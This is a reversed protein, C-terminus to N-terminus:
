VYVCNIIVNHISNKLTLNDITKQDLNLVKGESLEKAYSLADKLNMKGKFRKTFQAPLLRLWDRFENVVRVNLDQVSLKQLPKGTIIGIMPFILNMFLSNKEKKDSASWTNQNESLFHQYLDLLNIEIGDSQGIRKNPSTVSSLSQINNNIQHLIDVQYRNPNEKRDKHQYLMQVTRLCLLNYEKSGKKIDLKAWGVIKDALVSIEGVTGWDLTDDELFVYEQYEPPIYNLPDYEDKYGPGHLDVNKVYKEYIVDFARDVASRIEKWTISPIHQTKNMIMDFVIKIERSIKVALSKKTVKLTKLFEKKGVINQIQVPVYHRFYYTDSKKVLYSAAMKYWLKTCLSSVFFAM